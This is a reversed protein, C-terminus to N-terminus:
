WRGESYVTRDGVILRLGGIFLLWTTKVEIRARQLGVGPLEFELRPAFRMGKGRARTVVVGNLLVTEYGLGRGNYEIVCPCPGSVSLRRYLWSRSIVHVSYEAPSFVPEESWPVQPSAYPNLESADDSM